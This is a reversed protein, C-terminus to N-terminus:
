FRYRDYRSSSRTLPREALWIAQAVLGGVALYVLMAILTPM